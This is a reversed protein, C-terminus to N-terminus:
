PSGSRVLWRPPAQVPLGLCMEVAVWAREREIQDVLRGIAGDPDPEDRLADVVERMTHLARAHKWGSESEMPVELPPM